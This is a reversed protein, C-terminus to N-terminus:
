ELHSDGCMERHKRESDIRPKDKCCPGLDRVPAVNDWMAEQAGLRTSCCFSWGCCDTWCWFKFYLSLALKWYFYSMHSVPFSVVYHGNKLYMEKPEVGIYGTAFVLCTDYRSPVDSRVGQSDQHFHGGDSPISLGDRSVHPLYWHNGRLQVFATGIQLWVLALWWAVALM